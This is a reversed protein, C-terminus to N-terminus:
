ESINDEVYGISDGIRVKYIVHKEMVDVLNGKDLQRFANTFEKDRYVVTGSKTCKGIPYEPTAPTPAPAGDLVVYDSWIWGITGAVNVHTYSGNKVGDVEFRNGNDVKRLIPATNFSDARVNAYSVNGNHLTATGTAKWTTVVPPKVPVVPDDKAGVFIAVHHGDLLLIDGPQLYDPKSTYKSDTLIQFGASSYAKRIDGTTLGIDINKLAEIGKDFGVAKVNANTTSSCDGACPISVQSPDYNSAELHEWYTERTSQNYGVCNNKAAARAKKAICEAVSTDPYRLVCNWPRNYWSKLEYETGTQDGPQGGTYQGREDHGCNSIYIDTLEVGGNQIYRYAYGFTRGDNWENLPVGKFPQVSKVRWNDGCDFKDCKDNAADYGDLVFTHINRGDKVMCVIDGRTLQSKDTIKTFGHSSLYTDEDGGTSENFGHPGQDRFMTPSMDYLARAVMRDCSILHDSCPPDTQSDGYSFNNERAFECIARVSEMFSDVSFDSVPESHYGKYYNKSYFLRQSIVSATIAPSEFDRLVKESAVSIDNTTKLVSYVGQYTNKLENILFVLQTSEDSISVNNAKCLDYLGSKRGPSTWQAIGYGYQRDPIPHLFQERSIEGNDVMQTYQEDTYTTGYYAKLRIRCLEELRNFRLGSEAFLNGMLGAVGADTLNESKLTAWILKEEM